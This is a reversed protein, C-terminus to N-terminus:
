GVKKGQIKFEGMNTKAYINLINNILEGTIDYTINMMNNKLTGSFYCKNGDIKGGTINNKMGMIEIVGNLNNGQTKLLLNGKMAGMPTNINIEYMGDM